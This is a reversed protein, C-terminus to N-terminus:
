KFSPYNIEKEQHDDAYKKMLDFLGDQTDVIAISKQLAVNNPITVIIGDPTKIHFFFFSISEIKGEIQYDKEMVKIHDGLKLPHSFFVVIGATINSLISWQAFFAVGLVTLASTIFVLLEKRDVGWIITILILGLFVTMYGIIRAINKRREIGIQLKISIKKTARNTFFRAIWMLLLVIATYLIQHEITSM